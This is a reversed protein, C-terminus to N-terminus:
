CEFLSVSDLEREKENLQNILSNYLCKFRLNENKLYKKEIAKLTQRINRIDKELKEIYIDEEDFIIHLSKVESM